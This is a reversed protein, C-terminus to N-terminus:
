FLGACGDTFVSALFARSVTGKAGVWEGGKNKFGAAKLETSDVFPLDKNLSYTILEDTVCLEGSNVKHKSTKIEKISNVPKFNSDYDSRIIEAENITGDYIVEKRIVWGSYTSGQTLYTGRGMSYNERHECEASCESLFKTEPFTAAAKRMEPFLNRKHKSFGLLVRKATKSGYYDDNTGCDDELLEAILVAKANDPKVASFKEKFQDRKLLNIEIEENRKAIKKRNIEDLESKVGTVQEISLQFHGDCPDLFSVSNKMIHTVQWENIDSNFFMVEMMYSSSEGVLYTNGSFSYGSCIVELGITRDYTQTKTIPWISNRTIRTILEGAKSGSLEHWSNSTYYKTLSYIENRDALSNSLTFDAQESESYRANSTKLNQAYLIEGVLNASGLMNDQAFNALQSIQDNSLISVSM